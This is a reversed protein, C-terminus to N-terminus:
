TSRVIPCDLQVSRRVCPPFDGMWYRDEDVTLAYRALGHAVFNALRPIHSVVLIQLNIILSSIEGLINGGVSDSHSHDNVWKVVVAVDSEIVCPHLGCERSFILGKYIAMMEALIPDYCAELQISCSAMVASSCNRIVIGM